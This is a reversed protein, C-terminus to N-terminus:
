QPEPSLAMHHNPPPPPPARPLPRPPVYVNHVMRPDDPIVYFFNRTQQLTGVITDHARELIRIVRGEPGKGPRRPRAYGGDRAIRAVVRDGNM